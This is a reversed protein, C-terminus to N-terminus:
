RIWDKGLMRKVRKVLRTLDRPEDFAWRDTKIRWFFGAGSAVAEIELDRYGCCDADDCTDAEQTFTVTLGTIRPEPTDETM